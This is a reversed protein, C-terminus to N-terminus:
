LIHFIRHRLMYFFQFFLVTEVDCTKLRENVQCLEEYFNCYNLLYCINKQSPLSEQSPQSSIYMYKKIACNIGKNKPFLERLLDFTPIIHKSVM